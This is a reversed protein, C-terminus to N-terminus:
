GLMLIPGILQSFRFRGDFIMILVTRRMREQGIKLTVILTSLTFNENIQYFVCHCTIFLKSFSAFEPVKWGM